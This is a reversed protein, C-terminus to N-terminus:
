RTLLPITAKLDTDFNKRQKQKKNSNIIDRLYIQILMNTM